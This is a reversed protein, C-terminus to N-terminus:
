QQGEFLRWSCVRFRWSIQIVQWSVVDTVTYCLVLWYVIGNANRKYKFVTKKYRENVQFIKVCKMRNICM